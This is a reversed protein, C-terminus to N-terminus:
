PTESGAGPPAKTEDSSPARGSARELTRARALAKIYDDETNALVEDIDGMGVVIGHQLVAIRSTIRSVVSLESSVILASFKREHQLAAITDLVSDRVVADVGRTPEDAVLLTPDLILARALAVRQRQGSSLEHPLRSMDGLPLRVADIVTAVAADAERTNFKRDRQYIPEAVNEAVTLLPSLREAEDQRLYGIELTLRDRRRKGIGRLERGFVELSGGCIEPIGEGSGISGGEGAIAGALTSKGSGSEGLLGVIEGVGIDLSVGRVALYRSQTHNSRYRISVDRASVVLGEAPPQM